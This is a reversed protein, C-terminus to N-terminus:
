QAGHACGRAFHQDDRCCLTPTDASFVAVCLVAADNVSRCLLAESEAINSFVSRSNSWWSFWLQFWLAFPLQKAIRKRPDFKSLLYITTRHKANVECKTSHNMGGYHLTRNMATTHLLEVFFGDHLQRAHDINHCDWISNCNDGILVPLSALCEILKM